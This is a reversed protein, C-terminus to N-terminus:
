WRFSQSNERCRYQPSGNGITYSSASGSLSGASRVARQCAAPSAAASVSKRGAGCSSALSGTGASARAGPQACTVSSRPAAGPAVAALQVDHRLPGSRPVVQAVQIGAVVRRPRGPHLSQINATRRRGTRRRRRARRAAGAYALNQCFASRSVADCVGRFPEASPEVPICRPSVRIGRGAALVHRRRPSAADSPQCCSPWGTVRRAPFHALAQLVADARVVDVGSVAGVGEPTCSRWPAASPSRGLCISSM